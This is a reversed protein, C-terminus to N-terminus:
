PSCPPRTVQYMYLEKILDARFLCKLFEQLKWLQKSQKRFYTKLASLSLKHFYSLVTELTDYNCFSRPKSTLLLDIVKPNDPNKFCTPKKMVNKLSYLKCFKKLSPDTMEANLDRPLLINEYNSSYIDLERRLGEINSVSNKILTILVAIWKKKRLNTEVFFCEVKNRAERDILQSLIDERIYLMNGGGNHNRDYRYPMYFGQLLFRAAPLTEDLKTESVKLIDINGGIM